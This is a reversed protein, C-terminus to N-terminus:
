PLDIVDFSFGNCNALIFKEDFWIFLTQQWGMM